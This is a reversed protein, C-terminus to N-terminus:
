QTMSQYTAIEAKQATIISQALEKVEPRDSNKLALESMDIAGQHHPIMMEYFMADTTIPMGMMDKMDANVLDQSQKDPTTSYWTRLWGTMQAIEKSQSDVVKQAETRTEPKTATSLAQKAMEVAAQHHAIMQSLFAVDFDKGTKARLATLGSDGMAHDMNGGHAAHDMKPMANTATTTSAPPTTAAEQPPTNCGAVTAAVSLLFSLRM